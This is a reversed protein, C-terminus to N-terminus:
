GHIEGGAAPRLLALDPIPDHLLDVDPRAADEELPVAVGLNPDSLRVRWRRLCFGAGLGRGEVVEVDVRDLDLRVSVEENGRAVCVRDVLDIALRFRHEPPETALLAVELEAGPDPEGPLV